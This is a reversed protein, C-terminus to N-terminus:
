GAPVSSPLPAVELHPLWKEVTRSGIGHISQLEGLSKWPKERRREVIIRAWESRMGPVLLLEEESATNLDLRFGLLFRPAGDMKEVVVDVSKGPTRLIRIREGTELAREQVGEPILREGQRPKWGAAALADAVARSSETLVHIGPRSVDGVVEIVVSPPSPGEPARTSRWFRLLLVSFVLAAVLTVAAWQRSPITRKLM